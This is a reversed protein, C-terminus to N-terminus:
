MEKGIKAMETELIVDSRDSLWRLWCIERESDVSTLRAVAVRATYSFAEALTAL